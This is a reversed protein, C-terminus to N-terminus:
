SSFHLLRQPPWVMLQDGAAPSGRRSVVTGSSLGKKVSGLRELSLLISWRQLESLEPSLIVGFCLTRVSRSQADEVRPLGLEQRAAAAECDCSLSNVRDWWIEWSACGNRM